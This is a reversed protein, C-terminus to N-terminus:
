STLAIIIYLHQTFIFFYSLYFYNKWFLIVFNKLFQHKTTKQQTYNNQPASSFMSPGGFEMSYLKFIAEGGEENEVGIVDLHMLYYM